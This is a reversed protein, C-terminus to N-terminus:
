KSNKIELGNKELESLFDYWDISSPPVCDEYCGHEDMNFPKADFNMEMEPFIRELREVLLKREKDM